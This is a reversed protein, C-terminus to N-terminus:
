KIDVMKTKTSARGEANQATITIFNEGTPLQNTFHHFTGDANILAVEQGNVMVRASPETRGRVEIV